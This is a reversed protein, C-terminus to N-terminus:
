NGFRRIPERKNGGSEGVYTNVLPTSLHADAAERLAEAMAVNGQSHVLTNVSYNKGRLDSLLAKLGTGSQWANLESRDYRSVDSLSMELCPWRFLGFRGKYGLWWLSKYATEAWREKHIVGGMSFGHIFLIYDLGEVSDAAITDRIPISQPNPAIDPDDDQGMGVTYEEYFDTIPRLNMPLSYHAVHVPGDVIDLVLNSEGATVGEFLYHAVGGTGAKTAPSLTGKLTSASTWDFAIPVLLHDHGGATGSAILQSAAASPDKLYGLGGDPDSAEFVKISPTGFAEFHLRYELQAARAGSPLSGASAPKIWIRNFDELDRENRIFDIGCDIPGVGDDFAGSGLEVSDSDDNLWFEYHHGEPVVDTGTKPDSSDNAFHVEGDRNYDVAIGAEIAKVPLKAAVKGAGQGGADGVYIVITEVAGTNDTRDAVLNLPVAQRDQVPYQQVPNVLRVEPEQAGSTQLNVTINRPLPVVGTNVKMTLRRPQNKALLVPGDYNDPLSTATTAEGANASETSAGGTGEGLLKDSIWEVWPRSVPKDVSVSRGWAQNADHWAPPTAVGRLSGGQRSVMLTPDPNTTDYTMGLKVENPAEIYFNYKADTRKASARTLTVGTRDTTTVVNNGGADKQPTEPLGQRDYLHIEANNISTGAGGPLWLALRPTDGDYAVAVCRSGLGPYSFLPIPGKERAALPEGQRADM